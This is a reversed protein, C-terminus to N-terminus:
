PLEVKFMGWDGGKQPRNEGIGNVEGAWNLLNYIDSGNLFSKVYRVTIDCSWPSYEPRWRVDPTDIGIRCIDERMKPPAELILPILDEGPNVQFAGRAAVKTMGDLYTCASVMAKKFAVPPIADRKDKGVMVFRRCAEMEQEPVRAEKKRGVKSIDIRSLIKRAKESMAHVVLPTIGVIHFKAVAIELPLVRLQETAEKPLRNKPAVASGNKM